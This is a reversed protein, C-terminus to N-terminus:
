HFPKEKFIATSLVTGKALVEEKCVWEKVRGQLSKRKTCSSKFVCLIKHTHWRRTDHQTPHHCDCCIKNFSVQTYETHCHPQPPLSNEPSPAHCSGHIWCIDEQMLMMRKLLLEAAKLPLQPHRLPRSSFPQDKLLCSLHSSPCMSLGPTAWEAIQCLSADGSCSM